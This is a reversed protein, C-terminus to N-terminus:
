KLRSQLQRLTTTLSNRTMDLRRATFEAALRGALAERARLTLKRCTQILIDDAKGAARLRELDGRIEDLLREIDLVRERLVADLPYIIDEPVAIEPPSAPPAITPPPDAAAKQRKLESWARSFLFPFLGNAEGM